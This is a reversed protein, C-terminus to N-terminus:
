LAPPLSNESGKKKAQFVNLFPNLSETHMSLYFAITSLARFILVIPPKNKQKSLSEPTKNKSAVVISNPYENQTAFLGNSSM